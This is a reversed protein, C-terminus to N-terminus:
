FIIKKRLTQLTLNLEIKGSNRIIDQMIDNSLANNKRLRVIITAAVSTKIDAFLHM